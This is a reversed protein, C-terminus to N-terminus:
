SMLTCSPEEKRRDESRTYLGDAGSKEGARMGYPAGKKKTNTKGRRRPPSGAQCVGESHSWKLKPYRSVGADGTAKEEEIM